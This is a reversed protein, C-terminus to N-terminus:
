AYWSCREAKGDWLSGGGYSMSLYPKGEYLSVRKTHIEESKFENSPICTGCMFGTETTINKLRRIKVSKATVGVVKYFYINTQDYGWSYVFIDGIKVDMM